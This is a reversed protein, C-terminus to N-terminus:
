NHDTLTLRVGYGIYYGKSGGSAGTYEWHLFDKFVLGIGKAYKEISYNKESYVAFGSSPDDGFFEDAQVIKITSDIIQAGIMLPVNVSDYAYNWGGLYNVDSTFSGTEVYSNGKWSFGTKVPDVLKLFRLNNEILEVGKEGYVAMFTNNAQWQQSADTRISRLIRFAPRGANDIFKADVKDMVDYSIVTDREGFNIFLTSDLRYSIYKGTDLPYYAAAPLAEVTETSKKCSVFCFVLATILLAQLKLLM